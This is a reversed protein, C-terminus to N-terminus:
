SGTLAAAEERLKKALAGNGAAEEAKAQIELLQAHGKPDSLKRALVVGQACTVRTRELRQLQQLLSAMSVVCRFESGGLRLDYYIMRASCYATLAESKKDLKNYAAGMVSFGM